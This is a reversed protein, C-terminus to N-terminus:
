RTSMTGFMAGNMRRAPVGSIRPARQPTSHSRDPTTFIPMSPVISALAKAPHATPTAATPIRPGPSGPDTKPAVGASITPSTAATSTATTIEAKWAQSDIDTRASWIMLPVIM